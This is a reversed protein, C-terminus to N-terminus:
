KKNWYRVVSRFSERFKKSAFFYLLPDLCCNSSSLVLCKYYVLEIINLLQCQDPRFLKLTIGVTRSVHVPLFCIILIILSVVIMQMSKMKMYKSKHQNSNLKVIFRSLLSYCVISVVFPIIYGTFLITTNWVFYLVALEDQHISLCQTSNNMETTKLVFFFPFGQAFLLVWVGVCVLKVFKEEKFITKKTCHVIAIYRHISILTLFYISGYMHASLLFVKLQCLFQGFPWRSLSFYAIMFPAAPTIIADALSLNFQLIMGASWKKICFWFIWLSVSNLIFGMSFVLSLFIPIFAGLEEPKCSASVTSNNSSVNWYSPSTSYTDDMKLLRRRSKHIQSFPVPWCPGVQSLHSSGVFLSQHISSSSKM